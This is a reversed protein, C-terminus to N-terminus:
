KLSQSLATSPGINNENNEVQDEDKGIDTCKNSDDRNM